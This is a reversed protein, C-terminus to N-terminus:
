TINKNKSNFIGKDETRSRSQLTSLNWMTPAGNNITTPSAATVVGAQGNSSMISNGAGGVSVNTGALNSANM